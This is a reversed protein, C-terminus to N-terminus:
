GKRPGVLGFWAGQPDTAVIIHGGGPVPAPGYAINGGGDQVAAHAADIDPVGFYFLFSPPRGNLTKLVAGITRGAHDVFSYDGDDGMPMAGSKTWGFHRGWFDIAAEPDPAALENWNCHGLACQSFVNSPQDMAGRMVYFPVGQPDNVFALRGVGSIDTPPIHQAGGEALIAAVTADVDDVGVYGAWNPPMPGGERCEALELLGGVPEGAHHWLRYGREAGGPALSTTWGMVEGYFAASGEADPTMLEYWIFDGQPNRAM